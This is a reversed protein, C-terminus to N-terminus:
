EKELRLITGYIARGIESYSAKPKIICANAQEAIMLNMNKNCDGARRFDTRYAISKIGQEMACGFEMATGSDVDVGDCNVAIIRCESLNTLCASAIEKPTQLGECFEQPVRVERGSVVRLNNALMDNWWRQPSTFLPGALYIM